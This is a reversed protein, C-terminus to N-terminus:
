QHRLFIEHGDFSLSSGRLRNASLLVLLRDAFQDWTQWRAPTNGRGYDRTHNQQRRIEGVGRQAECLLRLTREGRIPRHPVGGGRTRLTSFRHVTSLCPTLMAASSTTTSNDHPYLCVITMITHSHMHTCSEKAPLTISISLLLSTEEEENEEENERVKLPYLSLCYCCKNLVIGGNLSYTLPFSVPKGIKAKKM